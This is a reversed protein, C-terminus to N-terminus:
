WIDSDLITFILEYEDNMFNVQWSDYNFFHHVSDGMFSAPGMWEIELSDSHFIKVVYSGYSGHFLHDTLVNDEKMVDRHGNFDILDGDFLITDIILNSSEISFNLRISDGTMNLIYSRFSYDYNKQWCGSICILLSAIVLKHGILTSTTHMMLKRIM